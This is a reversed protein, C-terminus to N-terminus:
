HECSRTGTNQWLVAASLDLADPEATRKCAGGRDAPQAGWCLRSVTLYAQMIKVHFAMILFPVYLRLTVADFTLAYNRIMWERHFGIDAGCILSYVFWATLFWLGALLDFGTNTVLGGLSVTAMGLGATSGLVVAILYARGM